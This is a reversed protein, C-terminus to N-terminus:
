KSSRWVCAANTVTASPYFNRNGGTNSSAKSSLFPSINFKAHCFKFQSNNAIAADRM